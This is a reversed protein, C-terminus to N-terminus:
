RSNFATVTLGAKRSRSRVVPRMQRCAWRSTPTAGISYLELCTISTVPVGNFNITGSGQLSGFNSGNITVSTGIGGSAPAVGSIIPMTGPTFSANDFTATVLGSNYSQSVAFGIYVTQAMTITQSTGAQTWTSGDASIYANFTNGTRALKVWYPYPSGAFTTSVATTSGGTTTREYLSAQNPDYWAFANTSAASLTERIMVGVQRSSDGGAITSVRAVILGDGSLPQFVFHFGDATSWVGTGSGNVTFTGSSYTASGAVYNAGVDTDLWGIPLPQSTVTFAPGVALDITATGELALEPGTVTTTFEMGLLM